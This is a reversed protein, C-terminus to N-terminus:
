KTENDPRKNDSPIVADDRRAASSDDGSTPDIPEPIPPPAVEPQRNRRFMDRLSRLKRRYVFGVGTQTVEGELISEYGVHRFLRIYMSGSRNLLYEFSIDNILNQSFNEDTDADTSYNGGVTIKFRDNFLSKSVRYSYSTTTSTSGNVTSDYQDIGFSIDVGKINNAAWSNIQSELFSFLPNGSLNGSAKTGPGTYTNYLLLNMAQNARQEPSMTQLENAISIDDRTSLDFKVNMDALTGTVAVSIDFNVLRSNQGEQTVNTKLTEVASVNLIPNMMDGNFGVYSGETFNFLKESMLPPTYRVFGQNITYRGTLRSDGLASMTYNLTGSGKVQAKNKGDTSIDVNITSGESVKLVADIIMSMSSEPVSDVQAMALSDTFQVFQVMDGTNRSTIASNQTGTMVYTVNTGPLLDLSANIGLPAMNGWIYADLDIFAKGYVDAGKAKESGIVQMDRASMTLNFLPAAFDAINVTGNLTLPNDNVGHIAYNDFTILNDKVPIPRDDFRFSTGIMNVKVSATDFTLSGNLIPRTLEGTIDIDGNLMGMLSATGPPLFPNAVRLPFHIMKLDLNFPNPSTSDNLAGEISITRVSDVMLYAQAMVAGAATTAVDVDFRFDGVRQHGYTFDDLSIDGAGEISKDHWGFRLNSSLMGAMPPAFPSFSLWDAIQVDSIQLILDEQSHNDPNHETYLNLRSDASSMRLNADVHRTYLNYSILNDENVTWKKYGIIPRYPTFKLTATSDAMTAILGINFGVSDAINRQKVFLGLKDDAVYGRANVHAFDDLTGRRNNLSADYVLFKGHQIARFTITDLRTTGTRFQLVSGGLAILSDNRANLSFSQLGMDSGALYDSVINQGGGNLALTFRPLAHQLEDIDAKRAVIQSDLVASVKTFRGLLTDLPCLAAFRMSLDREAIDARTVSDTATFNGKIAQSAIRTDPMHWELDTVDFDVNYLCHLPNATGAAHLSMSGRSETPSLNLGVLNLERIDGDIDFTYNDGNITGNLEIDLDAYTNLSVLGGHMNGKDLTAWAHIDHYPRSDYTVHHIVADAALTMKPSALNFGQGRAKIDATVAGVGLTPMFSNVPFSDTSLSIDYGEVSGQWMGDLALRGAGTRARLNGKYTTGALSVRGDLTMTPINVEKALKADLVTPKIFDVNNIRGDIDLNGALRKPDMVNLVRGSMAINVYGPLAASLDAINLRGATGGARAKVRLDNYRPVNRLMPRMTPMIMEVDPIGINADANLVIPLSPDTTLDGTGMSADLAIRSFLTSIDFGRAYMGTSDMSFTGSATLKVGCRETATLRKLPITIEPGRNFFSDVEINIGGAQIYNMDLGPLPRAGAMAYLGAANTLRVHDAEVTWLQGSSVTDTATTAPEPHAALYSASPTLYTATVSDVALSAAHIHHAPMDVLGDTLRTLKVEAGLSDILPMMRMRYTIDRLIVVGAKIRWPITATTDNPAPVTDPQMVLDMVGGDLTASGLDISSSRLNINSNDLSFRHIRAKLYLISDPTGLRYGAEELDIGAIAVEGRLLPLLRLDIAAQRATVMTDGTAEVVMVGGLDVSLPFKLRFHDISISMGTTKSVERLAIDKVFDQVFPIYLLAPLMLVVVAVWLLAKLTRRLATNRIWHGM